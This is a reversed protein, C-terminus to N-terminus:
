RGKRPHKLREGNPRAAHAAVGRPRRRSEIGRPPDRQQGPPNSFREILTHKYEELNGGHLPPLTPTAEEDMYGLLFGRLLRDQAAEHVPRCGALHAFYCLAQHSGNLLRM